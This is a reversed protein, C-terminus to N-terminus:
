KDEALANLLMDQEPPFWYLGLQQEHIIKDAQSIPPLWHPGLHIIEGAQGVVHVHRWKKCAVM